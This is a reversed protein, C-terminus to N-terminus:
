HKQIFMKTFPVPSYEGKISLTYNAAPKMYIADVSFNASPNHGFQQNLELKTENKPITLHRECNWEIQTNPNHKFIYGIANLRAKNKLIEPYQKLLLKIKDAYTLYQSPPIIKENRGGKFTPTIGDNMEPHPQPPPNNDKGFFKAYDDPTPKM